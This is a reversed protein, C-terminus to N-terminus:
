ARSRRRERAGADRYSSRARAAAGAGDGLAITPSFARIADAEDLTLLPNNRTRESTTRPARHAAPAPDHVRRRRRRHRHREVGDREHGPHAVRGDRDVHGRRHQRAGDHVVAAQQGLHGAARHRISELIQNCPERATRSTPTRQAQPQRSSRGTEGDALERVSAFPGTIVQDGAKLGTSCRSTSARRRHRGQGARVGGPRRARRVRRRNGQAHPRAATRRRRPATPEADGFFRRQPPPPPEHM